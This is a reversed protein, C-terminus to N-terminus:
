LFLLCYGDGLGTDDGRQVGSSRDKSRGVRDARLVVNVERHRPVDVKRRSQDRTEIQQIEDQILNVLVEVALQGLM